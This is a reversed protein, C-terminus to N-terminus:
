KINKKLLVRIKKAPEFELTDDVYNPLIYSNEGDVDVPYKPYVENFKIKIKSSSSTLMVDSYKSLDVSNKLYEGFLQIIMKANIEKILLLELKGDDLLANPFLDVGAFGKSNTIAGIICDCNGKKTDTEYDINYKVPKKVLDKLATIVYGAHGLNKKLKPDTVYPVHALHGFVSTYAAIKGNVSYSDLYRIEGNLIDNVVKSVNKSTVNYNKAMDNTTGTPVHSYLGKQNIENLAQYAESVTGDGGLTIILNNKDDAQKILEKVHGEYMSKMFCPKINQKKATKAILNVSNEKFGTSVPNYIITCKKINDKKM